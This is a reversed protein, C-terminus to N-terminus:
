SVENAQYHLKQREEPTLDRLKRAPVGAWLEGSEIVTDKSVVAGAAVFSEENVVVGEQLLAGMGSIRVFIHSHVNTIADISEFSRSFDSKV